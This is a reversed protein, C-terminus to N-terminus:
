IDNAVKWGGRQKAASLINARKFTRFQQKGVDLTLVVESTFSRVVARHTLKGADNIYILDIPIKNERSFNFLCKM